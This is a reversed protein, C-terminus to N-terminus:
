LGLLWTPSFKSKAELSHSKQVYKLNSYYFLPKPAENKAGLTLYPNNLHEAIIIKTEFLL